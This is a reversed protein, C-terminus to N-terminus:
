RSGGQISLKTTMKELALRLRSEVTKQSRGLLDGIERCSLGQFRHLILVERQDEPLSDIAALILDCAEQSELSRGPARVTRERTERQVETMIEDRRRERGSGSRWENLAVRYVYSRAQGIGGYQGRYTWLKLFTNQVLDEAKETSRCLRSFFRMLPGRVLAFLDRAAERDDRGIRGLLERLTAEEM